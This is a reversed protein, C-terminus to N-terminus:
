EQSTPEITFVISSIGYMSGSFSVSDSATGEWTATTGNVTWGEGLSNFGGTATVVIKTFNGLDTEFSGGGTFNKNNFDISDSIVAIGDKTVSIQGESGTIDDNNWTVTIAANQVEATYVIYDEYTGNPATSFDAVDVGFSKSTGGDANVEAASFEFSLAAAATTDSSATKFTYAISNTGSKLKPASVDNSSTATVVVKKSTDFTTTTNAPDHKVNINGVSNWGGATGEFSLNLDAPVELVYAEDTTPAHSVTLSLKTKYEAARASAAFSVAAATVLLIVSLKRLKM